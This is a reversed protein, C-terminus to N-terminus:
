VSEGGKRNNELGARIQDFSELASMYDSMDVKHRVVELAEALSTGEYSYTQLRVLIESMASGDLQYVAEEFADREKAFDEESIPPLDERPKEEKPEELKPVLPSQRIMDIVQNYEQLFPVHKSQIFDADERKGAFELEKAHESLEEAGIGKMASKLAHILITYNKWDKQDFAAQLKDQQASAQQVHLQLIRLYNSQNGNYRIGNQVNLDGIAFTDESKPEPTEPEPLTQESTEQEPTKGEVAEMKEEPLNRRLVRELVSVEVPKELFDAFGEKLFMERAGAIANATLAIIPVNQYYNGSKQRIRRLTEVGDMEPMMHDMFVFDYCKNEIKELAERGSYATSIKIQYPRLLGDIVEINMVNDDVVLIHAKPAIFHEQRVPAKANSRVQKGNLAAVVSLVFFPKYIIQFAKNKLPNENQRDMIVIVKVSETLKEFFEPNKNYEELSIFVHTFTERQTRRKLEGLHRCVHCKLDLQEIMRNLSDSYADRVETMGFREIDVLVIVNLSDKNQIEVIQREDSIKQPIVVTVTTGKGLKSKVNIVGGMKQVIAKAIALGLGVGGEQRNRKTDVQSFSTFLREVSEENMGIGTDTVSICLNLGYEERRGSIKLYVCGESTFKIANNMINMIVRRIKKEDGILGSPINADCDVVLEINKESRRALTMNIIDNITSTINYNEEVIDMKGTQLESFDLIDGVVSMLNRGETQIKFVEEHMKQPDHERLVVESMGCITNIPTRIEHSVNALFDDKSHESQKLREITKMINKTSENRKKIWFYVFWQALLVNILQVTEQAFIGRQGWSLQQLVFIRCFYHFLSSILTIYMVETIGYLGVLVLLVLFVIWVNERVAGSGYLNISVQVCVTTVLARFRLDGVRSLFVVWALLLNAVLFGIIWKEWNGRVASYVM